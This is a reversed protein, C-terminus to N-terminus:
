RKSTLAAVYIGAIKPYTRLVAVAAEATAGSDYLDDLLLVNHKGNGEIQDEYSFADKVAEVKAERTPIDKMKQGGAQKFLLHHFVPTNKIRGLANAVEAVPQRARASTAPMPVILGIHPVLPGINCAVAQALLEANDWGNRYKLQFVAEGAETRTNDFRPHGYEDDGTYVSSLMHKDLAYGKDWNGYIERLNVKM